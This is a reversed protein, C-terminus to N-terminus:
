ATDPAKLENTEPSNFEVRPSRPLPRGAPSHSYVWYRWLLWFVLGSSLGVFGMIIIGMAVFALNEIGLDQWLYTNGAGIPAFLVSLTSPVVAIIFAAILVSWWRIARLYWGALLTPLGFLFVYGLAVPFPFIMLLSAWTFMVAFDSLDLTGQM